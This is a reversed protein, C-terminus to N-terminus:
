YGGVVAQHLAIHDGIGDPANVQACVVAAQDVIVLNGEGGSGCCGQVSDIKVIGGARLHRLVRHASAAGSRGTVPQSVPVADVGPVAVQDAIQM